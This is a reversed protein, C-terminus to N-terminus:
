VQYSVVGIYCKPTQIKFVEGIVIPLTTPLRDLTTRLIEVDVFSTEKTM